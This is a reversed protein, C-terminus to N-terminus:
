REWPLAGGDDKTMGSPDQRSSLFEFDEVKVDLSVREEDNSAKYTHTSLEGSVYMKDGKHAYQAIIDGAKEWATCRFFVPETNGKRSNAAIGFTCYGKGSNTTKKQPDGTLNGIITQKNM